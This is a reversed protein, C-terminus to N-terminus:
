IQFDNLINIFVLVFIFKVDKFFYDLYIMNDDIGSEKVYQIIKEKIIIKLNKLKEECLKMLNNDIETASDFIEGDNSYYPNIISNCELCVIMNFDSKISFIKTRSLIKKGCSLCYNPTEIFFEKKKNDEQFRCFRFKKRTQLILPFSLFFLSLNFFEAYKAQFIIFNQDDDSIEPDNTLNILIQYIKEILAHYIEPIKLLFDIRKAEFKLFEYTENLDHLIFDFTENFFEIYSIEQSIFEKPLTILFHLLLRYGKAKPISWEKQIFNIMQKFFNINNKLPEKSVNFEARILLEVYLSKDSDM